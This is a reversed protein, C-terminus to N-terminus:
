KPATEQQAPDPNHHPRPIQSVLFELLALGAIVAVIIIVLSWIRFANRNSSPGRKARKLALEAEVMKMVEDPNPDAM